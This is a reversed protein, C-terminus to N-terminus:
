YGLLQCFNVPQPTACSQLVGNVALVTGICLAIVGVVVVCGCGPVPGFNFLNVAFEALGGLLEFVIGLANLVTGIVFLVICLIGCGAAILILTGGDM